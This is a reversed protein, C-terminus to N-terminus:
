FEVVVRVGDDDGVVGAPSFMASAEAGEGHAALVALLEADSGAEGVKLAFVRGRAAGDDGVAVM